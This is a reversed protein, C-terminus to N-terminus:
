PDVDVNLFRSGQKQVALGYFGCLVNLDIGRGSFVHKDEAEPVGPVPIGNFRFHFKDQAQLVPIVKELGGYCCKEVVFQFEGKSGGNKTAVLAAFEAM